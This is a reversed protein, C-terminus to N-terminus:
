AAKRTPDGADNAPRAAPQNIGVPGALATRERPVCVLHQLVHNREWWVAVGYIVANIALHRQRRKLWAAANYAACVSVTVLLVGHVVAKLPECRGVDLMDSVPQFATAARDRYAEGNLTM